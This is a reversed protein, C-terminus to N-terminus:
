LRKRTTTLLAPFCGAAARAGDGRAVLGHPRPRARAGGALRHLTVPLRRLELFFSYVHVCLRRLFGLPPASQLLAPRPVVPAWPGRTRACRLWGRDVRNQLIHHALVHADRAEGGGQVDCGTSSAPPNPPALPACPPACPLRVAEAQSQEAKRRQEEAEAALRARIEEDEDQRAGARQTGAGSGVVGRTAM